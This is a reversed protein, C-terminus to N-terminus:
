KFLFSISYKKKLAPFAPKNSDVLILHNRKVVTRQKLHNVTSVIFISMRRFQTLELTLTNTFHPWHFAYAVKKWYAEVTSLLSARCDKDISKM